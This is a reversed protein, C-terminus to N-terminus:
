SAIDILIKEKNKENFHAFVLVLMGNGKFINCYKWCAETLLAIKKEMERENPSTIPTDELVVGVRYINYKKNPNGEIINLFVDNIKWDRERLKEILKKGGDCNELKKILKLKKRRRYWQSFTIGHPVISLNTFKYLLLIKRVGELDLKFVELRGGLQIKIL